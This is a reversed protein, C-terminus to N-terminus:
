KFNFGIRIKVKKKTSTYESHVLNAENQLCM